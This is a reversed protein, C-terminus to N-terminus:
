VVSKRDLISNEKVEIINAKDDPTSFIAVMITFIIFILFISVFFGIINTIVNKLINKLFNM